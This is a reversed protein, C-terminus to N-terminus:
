QRDRDIDVQIRKEGRIRSLELDRNVTFEQETVRVSVEQELKLYEINELYYSTHVKFCSQVTGFRSGWRKAANTDKFRGVLTRHPVYLPIDIKARREHTNGGITRAGSEKRHAYDLVEIQFVPLGRATQSGGRRSM